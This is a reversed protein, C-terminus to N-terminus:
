TDAAADRPWAGGRAADMHLILYQGKRNGIITNPDELWLAPVPHVVALGHPRLFEDNENRM